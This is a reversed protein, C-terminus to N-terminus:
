NGVLVFFLSGVYTDKTSINVIALNYNWNPIHQILQFGVKSFGWIQFTKDRNPYHDMSLISHFTASEEFITMSFVEDVIVYLDHSCFFLFLRLDSVMCMKNCHQCLPFIYISHAM